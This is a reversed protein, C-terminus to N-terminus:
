EPLLRAGAALVAALPRIGSVLERPTRRALLTLDRPRVLGSDHTRGPRLANAAGGLAHFLATGLDWRSLPAPGVVHLIRPLPGHGPASKAGVLWAAVRLLADAVDGVEAPCRREDTFLTVPQGAAAAALDRATRPDPPAVAYLLSCRAVVAAPCASLVRREAEAKARGYPTLPAPPSDEDYPASEGDFVMDTSLHVLAAGARSAARAVAASGEVVVAELAREELTFATHVIVDPRAARVAGEAAGARALDLPYPTGRGAGPERTCFTFGVDWAGAARACLASGLFGSGGTVLLRPPV